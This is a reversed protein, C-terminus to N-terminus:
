IPCISLLFFPFKLWENSALIKHLWPDYYYYSSNMKENEHLYIRWAICSQYNKESTMNYIIFNLAESNSHISIVQRPECKSWQCDEQKETILIICSILLLFLFHCTWTWKQISEIFILESSVFWSLTNEFVCIDEPNEAACFSCYFSNLHKQSKFLFGVSPLFSVWIHVSNCFLLFSLVGKGVLCEILSVLLYGDIWEDMNKYM